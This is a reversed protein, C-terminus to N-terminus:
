AMMRCLHPGAIAQLRSGEEKTREQSEEEDIQFRAPDDMHIHCSTRGLEPNRTGSRSAVGYPCVGVERIRSFSRFNPDFKARTAAVLPM